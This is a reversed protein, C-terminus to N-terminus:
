EQGIFPFISAMASNDIVTMSGYLFPTFISEYISVATVNNSIDIVQGNYKTLLIKFESLVKPIANQLNPDSM